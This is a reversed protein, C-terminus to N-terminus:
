SIQAIFQPQFLVSPTLTVGDAGTLVGVRFVTNGSSTPPLLAAQGPLTSLFVPRGNDSLAPAVTFRMPVELGFLVFAETSAGALAPNQIIGAVNWDNLATPASALDLTGSSTVYILDGAVVNSAVFKTVTPSAGTMSPFGGIPIFPYTM